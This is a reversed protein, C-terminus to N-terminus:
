LVIMVMVVIIHMCLWIFRGDFKCVGCSSCLTRCFIVLVQVSVYGM